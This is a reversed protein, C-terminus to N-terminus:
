KLRRLYGDPNFTANKGFFDCWERAIEFEQYNKLIEGIAKHPDNNDDPSLFSIIGDEIIYYSDPSVLHNFKKFATIVDEYTHSGDDIILIKSATPNVEEQINYNQYGGFFKKIRPHSEVLQPYEKNFLDITHVEGKNNRDLLDALYLAGGGEHTGIEIILDPRVSSVIMQYLVYDFPCKVFNIGRYFIGFHGTREYPSGYITSTSFEQIKEM